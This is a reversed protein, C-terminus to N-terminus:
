FITEHQELPLTSTSMMYCVFVVCNDICITYSALATGEIEEAIEVPSISDVAKVFYIIGTPLVCQVEFSAFGSACIDSYVVIGRNEELLTAPM